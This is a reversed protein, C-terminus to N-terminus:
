NLLLDNTKLIKIQQAARIAKRTRSQVKRILKLEGWEKGTLNPIKDQLEKARIRRKEEKERTLILLKNRRPRRITPRSMIEKTLELQKEISQNM